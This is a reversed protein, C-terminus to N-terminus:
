TLMERMQMTSYRSINEASTRNGTEPALRDAAVIVAVNCHTTCGFLVLLKGLQRRFDDDLVHILRVRAALYVRRSSREPSNEVSVALANNELCPVNKVAIRDQWAYTLM